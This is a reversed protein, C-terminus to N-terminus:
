IKTFSNFRALSSWVKVYVPVSEDLNIIDVWVYNTLAPIPFTVQVESGAKFPIDKYYGFQEVEDTDFDENNQSYRWRVRVGKTADPEYYARITIILADWNYLDTRIFGTQDGPYIEADHVMFESKFPEVEDRIVTILTDILNRIDILYIRSDEVYFRIDELVKKVEDLKSNTAVKVDKVLLDYLSGYPIM